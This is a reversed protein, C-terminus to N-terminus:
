QPLWEPWEAPPPTAPPPLPGTAAPPSGAEAGPPAADDAETEPPPESGGATVLVLIRARATLFRQRPGLALQTLVWAAAAASVEAGVPDPHRLVAMLGPALAEPRVPVFVRSVGDGADTPSGRSGWGVYLWVCRVAADRVAELRELRTQVSPM